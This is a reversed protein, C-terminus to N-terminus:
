KSFRNSLCADAATQQAALQRVRVRFGTFEATGTGTFLVPM